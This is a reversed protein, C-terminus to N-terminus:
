IILFRSHYLINKLPFTIGGFTGILTQMGSFATKARSRGNVIGQMTTLSDLSIAKKTVM